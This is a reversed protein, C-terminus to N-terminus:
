YAAVDMLRLARLSRSRKPRRTLASSATRRSSKTPISSILRPLTLSLPTLSGPPRYITPHLVHSWRECTCLYVASVERIAFRAWHARDIQWGNVIRSWHRPISTLSAVDLESRALAIADGINSLSTGGSADFCYIETCRRRLLEVLGLNEYHGGDSVYLYPDNVSNWGMMEKILYLPGPRPVRVTRRFEAGDGTPADIDSRETVRGTKLDGGTHRDLFQRVGRSTELWRDTRRPNPVWVGLRVNALGLLFRFSRRTLKGMAPSIAAGSMAVAASLTFDHLHSPAIREEFWPTPVGGILPGGMSTPSFTFSTVSRGPPTAGNDSVNAAACVLLTPWAKTPAEPGAAVGSESLKVLRDYQRELAMGITDSPERRVRKLAFASFLRRRYFPHLSWSTVNGLFWFVLLLATVGVIPWASIHKTGVFTLLALLLMGALVLPGVVWAFVQVVLRQAGGSLKQFRTVGGEVQKVSLSSRLELIVAGLLGGSSGGLTAGIEGSGSSVEHQHRVVGQNRLFAVLEPLGKTILLVVLAAGFFWLCLTEVARRFADSFLVRLLLALGALLGVAGIAGGLIWWSGSTNGSAPNDRLHPGIQRYLISLLWATLFLVAAILLLNVFLGLALRLVLRLIGIGGPAMYNTHNRVYQEEPSGRYFPPKADNFLSPDSDDSDTGGTRAVTTFASAIYAGGSVAALYEADMLVEAEQLRQLAGLNFAASRIGGGSCCIAVRKDAPDELFGMYSPTPEREIGLFLHKLRDGRNPKDDAWRRWAPIREYLGRDRAAENGSGAESMRAREM